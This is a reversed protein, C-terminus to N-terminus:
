TSTCVAVMVSTRGSLSIGAPCLYIREHSISLGREVALWGSIQEPSWDLMIKAEILFVVEVRMKIAKAAQARRKDAKTQAQRPRYGKKGKNRKLERSITAPAVALL